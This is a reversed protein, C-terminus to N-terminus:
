KMVHWVKGDTLCGLVTNRKETRLIYLCYILMGTCDSETVTGFEVAVVSKVEIIMLPFSNHYVVMGTTSQQATSSSTSHQETPPQQAVTSTTERMM